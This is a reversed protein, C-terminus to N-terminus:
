NHKSEVRDSAARSMMVVKREAAVWTVTKVALIAFTLAAIINPLFFINDNPLLGRLDGTFLLSFIGSFTISITVSAAAVLVRYLLPSMPRALQLKETGVLMAIQFLGLLMGWLLGIILGFGLGLMIGFAFMTWLDDTFKSARQTMIAEFLSLVPFYFTGYIAGLSAGLGIGPGYV